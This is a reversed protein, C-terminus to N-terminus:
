SAPRNELTSPLVAQQIIVAWPVTTDDGGHIASGHWPVPVGLRQQIEECKLLEKSRM